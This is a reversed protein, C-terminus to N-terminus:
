NPNRFEKFHPPEPPQAQKSEGCQKYAHAELCYTTSSWPTASDTQMENMIERYLIIEKWDPVITLDAESPSGNNGALVEYIDLASTSEGQPSIAFVDFGM